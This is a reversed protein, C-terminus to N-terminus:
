IFTAEVEKAIKEFALKFKQLDKNIYKNGEKVDDQISSITYFIEKKNLLVILEDWRKSLNQNPQNSAECQKLEEFLAAVAGKYQSVEEKSFKSHIVPGADKKPAGQVKPTNDEKIGQIAGMLDSFFGM